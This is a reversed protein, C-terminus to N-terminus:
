EIKTGVKEPAPQAPVGKANANPNSPASPAPIKVEASAKKPAPPIVADLVSRAVNEALPVPTLREGDPSEVIFRGPGLKVLSYGDRDDVVKRESEDYNLEADIAEKAKALLDKHKRQRDYKETDFGAAKAFEPAVEVGHANLYKGPTDTYMYVDVQTTPHKSIIVGRDYDIVSM